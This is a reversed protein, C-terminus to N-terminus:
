NTKHGPGIVLRVILGVIAGFLIFKAAGQALLLWGYPTILGNEFQTYDGDGVKGNASLGILWFVLVALVVIIAAVKAGGLAADWFAIPKRMSRRLTPGGLLWCILISIPIGVIAAVILGKPNPLGRANPFDWFVVGIWGLVASLLVANRFDRKSYPGEAGEAM